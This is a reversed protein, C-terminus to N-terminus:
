RRIRRACALATGAALGALALWGRNMTAWLQPSSRRAVVDFRGHAGHDGPVPHWLNDQRGPEIPEESQQGSVATWALYHDLASSALRDGWIAELTPLGVIVKKRRHHAEFHIAEAAIV